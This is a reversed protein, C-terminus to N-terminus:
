FLKVEANRADESDCFISCVKTYSEIFNSFVEDLKGFYHILTNSHKLLQKVPVKQIPEEL